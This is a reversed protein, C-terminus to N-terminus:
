AIEGGFVVSWSRGEIDNEFLYRISAALAVIREPTTMTHPAVSRCLSVDEPSFDLPYELLHRSL